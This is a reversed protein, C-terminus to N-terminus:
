LIQTVKMVSETQKMQIKVFQMREIMAPTNYNARGSSHDLDNRDSNQPCLALTLHVWFYLDSLHDFVHIAGLCRQRYTTQCMRTCRPRM